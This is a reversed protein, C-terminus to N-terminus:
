PSEGDDPLNDAALAFRALADSWLADLYGRVEAFGEARLAYLNQRGHAAHTVLGADELLRLHRSVAPRSIDFSDALQQVSQPGPRLRELLARRVPNGIADLANVAM